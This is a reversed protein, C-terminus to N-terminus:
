DQHTLKSEFTERLYLTGGARRFSYIRGRPSRLYQGGAYKVVPESPKGGHGPTMRGTDERVNGWKWGMQEMRMITAMRVARWDNGRGRVSHRRFTSDVQRVIEPAPDPQREYTSTVFTM